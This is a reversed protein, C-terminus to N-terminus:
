VMAQKVTCEVPMFSQGHSHVKLSKIRESLVSMASIFRAPVYTVIQSKM